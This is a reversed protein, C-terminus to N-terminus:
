SFCSSFCGFNSPFTEILNRMEADPLTVLELTAITSVLRSPDTVPALDVFFVGDAFGDVFPAGRGGLRLGM